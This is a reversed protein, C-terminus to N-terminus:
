FIISRARRCTKRRCRASCSTPFHRVYTLKARPSRSRALVTQMCSRRGCYASPRSPGLAVFSAGGKDNITGPSDLSVNNPANDYQASLVVPDVSVLNQDYDVDLYASGVGQGNPVGQANERLDKVLAVLKFDVGATVTDIVNGAMDTTQLRIEMLQNPFANAAAAQAQIQNVVQLADLPSVRRDGNVDLYAPISPVVGKAAAQVAHTGHAQLDNVLVLVDLPTVAKDNNVDAHNLPNQWSPYWVAGVPAISFMNRNELSEVLSNRRTPRRAGMAARTNVAERIRHKSKM